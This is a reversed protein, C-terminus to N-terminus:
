LSFSEPFPKVWVSSSTHHAPGHFAWVKPGTWVKNSVCVKEPTQERNVDTAGQEKTLRQLPQSASMKADKQPKKPPDISKPKNGSSQPWFIEFCSMLKTNQKCNNTVCKHLLVRRFFYRREELFSTYPRLFEARVATGYLAVPIQLQNSIWM